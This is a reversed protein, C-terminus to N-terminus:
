ADRNKKKITRKRIGKDDTNDKEKKSTGTEYSPEGEAIVKVDEILHISLKTIGKVANKKRYSQTNLKPSLLIKKISAEPRLRLTYEYSVLSDNNLKFFEADTSDVLDYGKLPVIGKPYFYGNRNRGLFLHPCNYAVGEVLNFDHQDAERYTDCAIYTIAGKVIVEVKSNYGKFA